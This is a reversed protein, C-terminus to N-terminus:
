NCEPADYCDPDECDVLGDCDDDQGTCTEAVPELANCDTLGSHFCFRQGWCIGHQNERFCCTSAMDEIAQPSCHCEKDPSDPLCHGTVWQDPNDEWCAHGVHCDTTCNCPTGCFSGKSGRSICEAGGPPSSYMGKCDEDSNCPRCQTAFHPVCMFMIDPGGVNTAKMEWGEPCEEAGERSCVKGDIVEICLYHCDEDTQCQCGFWGSDDGEYCLNGALCEVTQCKTGTEPLVCTGGKCLQCTDCGGCHLGDCTVGCELGNCTTSCCLHDWDCQEGPGCDGCDCYPAKGGASLGIQGCKAEIMACRKQCEDAVDYCAFRDDWDAYCETGPPCEGCPHVLDVADIQAAIEQPLTATDTRIGDPARTDLDQADLAHDNSSGCSLAIFAAVVFIRRM